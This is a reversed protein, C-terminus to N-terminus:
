LSGIHPNDGKGVGAGCACARSNWAGPELSLGPTWHVLVHGTNPWPDHRPLPLEQWIWQPPPWSRQSSSSYSAVGICPQLLSLYKSPLPLEGLLSIQVKNIVM